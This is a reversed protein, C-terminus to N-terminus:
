PFLQHVYTQCAWGQKGVSPGSTVKIMLYVATAEPTTGCKSTSREIISCYSKVPVIFGPMKLLDDPPNGDAVLKQVEPSDYAVHISTSNSLGAVIRYEWSKESFVFCGMLSLSVV